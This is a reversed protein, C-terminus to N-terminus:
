LWGQPAGRLNVNTVHHGMETIFILGEVLLNQQLLATHLVQHLEQRVALLATEGSVEEDAAQLYPCTLRQKPSMLLFPKGPGLPRHPLHCLHSITGQHEWAGRPPASGPYPVRHFQGVTRWTPSGPLPLCGQHRFPNVRMGWPSKEVCSCTQLEITHKPSHIIGTAEKSGPESGRRSGGPRAQAPSCKRHGQQCTSGWGTTVCPTPVSSHCLCSVWSGRAARLSRRSTGLPLDQIHSSDALARHLPRPTNHTGKCPAAASLLPVLLSGALRM